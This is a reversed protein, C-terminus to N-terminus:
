DLKLQLSDGGNKIYRSDLYDRGKADTSVELHRYRLDLVGHQYRM